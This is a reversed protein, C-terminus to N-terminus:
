EEAEWKSQHYALGSGPRARLFSLVVIKKINLERAAAALNRAGQVHVHDYSQHQQRNIGACHVVMDCGELANHLEVANGVDCAAFSISPLKLLDPQERNKGRAALVVEHGDSILARALRGGIFGTGGTIAIKM